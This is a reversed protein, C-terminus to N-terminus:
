FVQKINPLTKIYELAETTNICDSDYVGDFNIDMLKDYSEDSFIIDWGKAYGTPTPENRIYDVNAIIGKKLLEKQIQKKSM